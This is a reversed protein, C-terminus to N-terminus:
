SKKRTRRAKAAPKKAAKVAEIETRLQALEAKLIDFEERSVLDMEAVMRDAQARVVAGLEEKIGMAAGAASTMIDALDDFVPKRTQM